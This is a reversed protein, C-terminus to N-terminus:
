HANTKEPPCLITYFKGGPYKGGPFIMSKCLLHKCVPQGKEDVFGIYVKVGQKKLALLVDLNETNIQWAHQRTMSSGEERTLIRLQCVTGDKEVCELVKTASDPAWGYEAVALYMAKDHISVYPYKSM